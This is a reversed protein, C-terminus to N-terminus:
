GSSVGPEPDPASGSRIQAPASFRRRQLPFEMALEGGSRVQEEHWRAWNECYALRTLNVGYADFGAAGSTTLSSDHHLGISLTRNLYLLRSEGYYSIARHWYETDAGTRVSDFYGLEEVVLRRFMASAPNQHSYSGWPKLMFMGDDNVRVWGSKTAVLEPRSAMTSVHLELHQPHWWDDSDHCTVLAGSSRAIAENKAVYTGANQERFIPKIRGDEAALRSIIDRTGDSSVDDVVFLEFNGYTQALVSRISFEIHAASNFATMVVTVLPGESQTPLDHAEIRRLSFSSDAELSVPAWLGQMAFFEHLYKQQQKWDGRYAARNALGLQLDKNPTQAHLEELLQRSLRFGARQSLLESLLLTSSLSGQRKRVVVKKLIAIAADPDSVALLRAKLEDLARFGPRIALHHDIFEHAEQLRGIRVLAHAAMGIADRQQPDSHLGQEIEGVVREAYVGYVLGYASRQRYSQMELISAMALLTDADKCRQRIRSALLHKLVPQERLRSSTFDYLVRAQDQPDEMCSLLDIMGDAAEACSKRLQQELASSMVRPTAVIAQLTGIRGEARTLAVQLADIRENVSRLVHELGDAQSSGAGTDPEGVVSERM